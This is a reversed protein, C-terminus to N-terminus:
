LPHIITICGGTALSGNGKTDRYRDRQKDMYKSKRLNEYVTKRGDSWKMSTVWKEKEEEAETIGEM